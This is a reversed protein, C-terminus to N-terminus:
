CSCHISLLDKLARELCQYVFVIRNADINFLILNTNSCANDFTSKETPVPIYM